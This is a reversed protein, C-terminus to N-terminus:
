CESPLFSVSVTRDHEPIGELPHAHELDALKAPGDRMLIINGLSVDGHIWGSAHM